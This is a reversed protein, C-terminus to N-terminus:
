GRDRPSPSTYLLCTKGSGTGGSIIINKRDEIGRDIVERQAPSIIGDDVYQDLSFVKSARKRIAFSPATVVPPILGEFRSGDLPLEGELVPDDATTATDLFSSLTNIISRVASPAVKCENKIGQGMREVWVSGDPNAMIEIVSPDDLFRSIIGLERRLKKKVRDEHESM